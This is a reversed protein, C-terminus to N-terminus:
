MKLDDDYAYPQSGAAMQWDRNIGANGVEEVGDSGDVDQVDSM